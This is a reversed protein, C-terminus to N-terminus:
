WCCLLLIVWCYSDWQYSQCVNELASALMVSDNAPPNFIKELGQGCAEPYPLFSIFSLPDTCKPPAPPKFTPPGCRDPPEVGCRTWPNGTPNNLARLTAFESPTILEASLLLLNNVCLTNNYVNQYCCGMEHKVNMLAEKCGPPCSREPTSNECYDFSNLLTPDLIDALAFRCYEGVAATGNSDTCFLGISEAALEDKCVSEQFEVFAGGCDRTCLNEFAINLLNPHDLPPSSVTELSAGCVAANPLMSLFANQQEQTCSTLSTSTPDIDTPTQPLATGEPSDPTEQPTVFSVLAISIILFATVTYMTYM